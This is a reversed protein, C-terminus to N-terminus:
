SAAGASQPGTGNGTGSEGAPNPLWSVLLGRGCVGPSFTGRWWGTGAVRKGVGTGQTYGARFKYPRDPHHNKKPPSPPSTLPPQPLLFEKERTRKEATM